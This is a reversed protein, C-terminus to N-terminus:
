RRSGGERNEGGEDKKEENNKNTTIRNKIGAESLSALRAHYNTIM